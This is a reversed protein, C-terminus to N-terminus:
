IIGSQSTSSEIKLLSCSYNLRPKTLPIYYIHSWEPKSNKKKIIIIINYGM